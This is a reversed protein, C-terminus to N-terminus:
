PIASGSRIRDKYFLNQVTSDTGFL